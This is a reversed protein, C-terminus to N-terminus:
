QDKETMAFYRALFLLAAQIIIGALAGLGPRMQTASVILAAPILWISPKKPILKPANTM